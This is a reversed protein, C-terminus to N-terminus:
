GPSCATGNLSYSTPNTNTGSYAGNFGIV